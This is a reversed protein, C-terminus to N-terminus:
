GVRLVTLRQTARTLAVYLSSAGRPEGRIIGEPDAVIVADFELGKAERPGLVSVARSLTDAGLGIEDGLRDRLAGHLEAVRADPAIVAVTGPRGAARDATVSGVVAATLASAAVTREIPDEEADRVSRSPTIVLGHAHAEREALEAIQAPTRYNVTLEELRFDAALPRIADAWTSAASPSSAQAIDGVITFSRLPARRRLLRWQM